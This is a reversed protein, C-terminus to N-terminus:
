GEAASLAPAPTLGLMLNYVWVKLEIEKVMREFKKASVVEGSLRKFGSFFTEATWRRGYGVREKWGPPATLYARVAEERAGGWNPDSDERVKIGAEIGCAALFKFNDHTDYGGDGLARRVKVKRQAKRVLPELMEGDHTKEDTVELSVVQKTEIDVGM